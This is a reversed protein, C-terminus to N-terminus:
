AGPVEQGYATVANGAFVGALEGPSLRRPGFCDLLHDVYPAIQAPSM